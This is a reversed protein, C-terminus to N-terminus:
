LSLKVKWIAGYQRMFSEADRGWLLHGGTALARNLEVVYDALVQDLIRQADAKQWRAVLRSLDGSAAVVDHVAARNREFEEDVAEKDVHYDM